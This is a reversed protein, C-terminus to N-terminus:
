NCVHSHDLEHLFVMQFINDALINVTEMTLTSNRSCIDGFKVTVCIKLYTFVTSTLVHAISTYSIGLLDMFVSCSALAFECSTISM